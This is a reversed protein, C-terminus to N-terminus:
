STDASDGGSTTATKFDEAEAKQPKASYIRVRVFTPGSLCGPRLQPMTSIDLSDPYSDEEATYWM